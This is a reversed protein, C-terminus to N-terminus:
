SRGEGWYEYFNFWQLPEERCYHELYAVYRGLMEEAAKDRRERPVREGQFLPRMVTKYARDGTRLCAAFYVPCGLVTAALFPSAPFSVPEGLFSADLSRAAVGPPLRDALIVVFEGRDLCAKLKFAASVSAPDIEIARLRAGPALSEFFANIREANRYFVVVNVALDHERSISWLMDVNGLHAGLLLASQGRKALEFIHGSGDHEVGMLELQGGWMLIREYINLAFSHLHALVDLLSTGSATDAGTGSSRLRALYQRSGRRANAGVVLFYLAPLWLIASM